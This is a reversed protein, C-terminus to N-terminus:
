QKTRTRARTTIMGASPCLDALLCQDCTPSQSHCIARGHEILDLSLQTWDTDPLLTCVDREVVKPDKSESWGLRRSLRGVHTDVTLSPIGFWSGRVVNATKHGVGPLSELSSSDEPVEGDFEEILTIALGVISRAKTRFFGLPHVVSEVDPIAAQALAQPTPWRRFLEPTVSNVRIDTTQASLVTAVLLEYVNRHTLSTRALPYEDRLRQVIEDANARIRLNEDNNASTVPCM